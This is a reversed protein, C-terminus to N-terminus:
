SRPWQAQVFSKIQSVIPRLPCNPKHIKSIGYLTPIKHTRRTLYSKQSKNLYNHNYLSNIINDVEQKAKFLNVTAIPTYTFDDSLM